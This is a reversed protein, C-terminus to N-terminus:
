KIEVLRTNQDIYAINVCYTINNLMDIIKDAWEIVTIAGDQGIFEDFGAEYAESSDSLRYMDFHYFDWKEGKYQRFLTFTPSLVAKKVGLGAALGKAFVTKGAGLQGELAIIDGGKLKQALKKGLEFTQESSITKYRV